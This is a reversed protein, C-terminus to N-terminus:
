MSRGYLWGLGLGLYGSVGIGGVLFVSQSPFFIWTVLFGTSFWVIRFDVGDLLGFDLFFYLGFLGVIRNWRGVDGLAGFLLYGDSFSAM